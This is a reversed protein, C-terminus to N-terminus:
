GAQHAIAASMIRSVLQPDRVVVENTGHLISVEGRRADHVCFMVPEDPVARLEHHDPAAPAASASTASLVGMPVAVAAAGSARLLDRRSWDSM